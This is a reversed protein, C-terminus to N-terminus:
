GPRPLGHVSTLERTTEQRRNEIRQRLARMIDLNVVIGRERANEVAGDVDADMYEAMLALLAGAFTPGHPTEKISRMNRVVHHAVEHVLTHNDMMERSLVVEAARYYSKTTLNARGPTVTVRPLGLEVTILDALEAAEGITAFPRHSVKFSHEWLYLKERQSDRDRNRTREFRPKFDFARQRAAREALRLHSHLSIGTVCRTRRGDHRWCVLHQKGYYGEIVAIEGHFESRFVMAAKALPGLDVLAAPENRAALKRAPTQREPADVFVLQRPDVALPGRFM